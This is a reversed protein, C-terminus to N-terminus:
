ISGNKNCGCNFKYDFCGWGVPMDNASQHTKDIFEKLENASYGQFEKRLTSGVREKKCLDCTYVTNFKLSAHLQNIRM